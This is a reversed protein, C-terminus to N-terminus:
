EMGHESKTKYIKGGWEPWKREEFFKRNEKELERRLISVDMGRFREKQCETDNWIEIFGCTKLVLEM